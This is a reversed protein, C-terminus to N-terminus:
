LLTTPAVSLAAEFMSNGIPIVHILPIKIGAQRFREVHEVCEAPSGNIVLEDVVREPIAEVAARRDGVEWLKWMAEFPETRGAWEHFARYTPTTAYWAIQRRAVALVQERDTSPCVFLRQGLTVDTGATERIRAIDGFAAWSLLAGDGDSGALRLM